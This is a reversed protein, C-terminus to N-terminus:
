VTHIKTVRDVAMERPKLEWPSKILCVSHDPCTFKSLDRYTLLIELSSILKTVKPLQYTLNILIPMNIEILKHKLSVPSNPNMHLVFVNSCVQM